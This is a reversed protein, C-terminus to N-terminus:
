TLPRTDNAPSVTHRIGGTMLSAGLGDAAVAKCCKDAGAHVEGAHVHRRQVAQHAVGGAVDDVAVAQGDGGVAAIM